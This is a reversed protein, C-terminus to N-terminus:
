GGGLAVDLSLSGTPITDVQMHVREGLRMVAGKGFSKEMRSMVEELSRKKDSATADPNHPVIKSPGTDKAM